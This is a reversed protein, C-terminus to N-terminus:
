AETPKPALLAALAGISASAIMVFFSNIEKEILVKSVAGSTPHTTESYEHPFISLAAFIISLLLAAGVIYVVKIFIQKDWIPPRDIKAKEKLYSLQEDTFLEKASSDKAIKAIFRESKNM